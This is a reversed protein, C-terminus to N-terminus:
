NEGQEPVGPGPKSKVEKLVEDLYHKMGDVESTAVELKIFITSPDHDVTVRKLTLLNFFHEYCRACFFSFHEGGDHRVVMSITNEPSGVMRADGGVFYKAVIRAFAVATELNFDMGSLLIINKSETAWQRTLVDLQQHGAMGFLASLMKKPVAVPAFSHAPIYWEVYSELISNIYARADLGQSAAFDQIVKLTEKNVALNVVEDGRAGSM